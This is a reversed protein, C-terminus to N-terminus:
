QASAASLTVFPTPWGTLLELQQAAELTEKKTDLFAEVAELCATQLELYTALPVAGLRYHRDALEAAERFKDVTDPRWESTAALKATLAHFAIIVDREMERQAVLLLTEAQRRRAEAIDTGARTRGSLPLPVSVGLGFVTEREGAKEQSYFPSISIAPYRENRALSVELGQQELEIRKSRFDYNNERAAALLRDLDPPTQFVISADASRLPTEVPAGRLQNLEVLAAQAALRAETARRKLALEQAEIVRTELLPTIGAPDRALFLERLTQYRAAVEETAASKASAAVLEYTLIRARALLAARFHALGLEALDIQRNAISKRLALRGPWEITQTISVSWATGEDALSGGADHVRKRGAEVSLEPDAWRGASRRGARAAAIEAEYFALEPNRAVIDAVVTDFAVPAVPEEARLTAHTAFLVAFAALPFFHRTKM